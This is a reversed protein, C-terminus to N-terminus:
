NEKGGRGPNARAAIVGAHKDAVAMGRATVAPGFLAFVLLLGSNREASEAM